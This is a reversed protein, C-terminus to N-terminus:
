NSQFTISPGKFAFLNKALTTCTCIFSSFLALSYHPRESMFVFERPFIQSMQLGM